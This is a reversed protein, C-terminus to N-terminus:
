LQAHSLLQVAVIPLHQFDPNGWGLGLRHWLYLVQRGTCSVYLSPNLGQDPLDRPSPMAVWELIRAQLIGHVPSGPLTSDLPNCLTPCLPLLNVCCVIVQSATLM